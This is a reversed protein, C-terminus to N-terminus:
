QRSSSTAVWEQIRAQLIGHVSSGLPNCDMTPQLSDSTVLCAHVIHRSVESFQPRLAMADKMANMLIRSRSAFDDNEKWRLFDSSSMWPGRLDSFVPM